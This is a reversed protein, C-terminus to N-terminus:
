YLWRIWGPAPENINYLPRIAYVLNNFTMTREHDVICRTGDVHEYYDSGLTYVYRLQWGDQEIYPAMKYSYETKSGDWNTVTKSKHHGGGFVYSILQAAVVPLLITKLILVKWFGLRHRLLLWLLPVGALLLGLQSMGGFGIGLGMQMSWIMQQVLIMVGIFILIPPMVNASCKRALCCDYIRGALLSTKTNIARMVIFLVAIVAVILILTGM